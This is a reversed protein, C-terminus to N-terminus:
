ADDKTESQNPIEASTQEDLLTRIKKLGWKLDGTLTKFPCSLTSYRGIIVYDFDKMAREPFVQRVAARLRRRIRNRVVASGLKKTTTFGIHCVDQNLDPKLSPTAQLVVTSMVMHMGKAVRLFDRRKTLHLIKKM